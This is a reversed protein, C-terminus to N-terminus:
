RLTLCVGMHVAAHCNPCLPRLDKIPDVVYEVGTQSLPVLHHVHIYGDVEPGYFEGFSFDCASCRSGYHRICADRAGSDREYRNTTVETRRGEIFAPPEADSGLLSAKGTDAHLRSQLALFRQRACRLLKEGVATRLHVVAPRLPRFGCSELSVGALPCSRLDLFWQVQLRYEPEKPDVYVLPPDYTSGDWPKIVRGVGVVGLRNVYMFVIDSAQLRGLTKGYRPPGGTIVLSTQFWTDHPSVRLSKADTNVVYYEM